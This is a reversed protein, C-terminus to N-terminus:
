PQYYKVKDQFNGKLLYVLDYKAIEEDPNNQLGEKIESSEPFVPAEEGFKVVRYGLLLDRNSQASIEQPSISASHWVERRAKPRNIQLEAQDNTFNYFNWTEHTDGPLKQILVIILEGGMGSVEHFYKYGADFSHTMTGNEYIELWLHVCDINEPLLVEYAFLSDYDPTTERLILDGAHTYQMDQILGDWQEIEKLEEEGYRAKSFFENSNENEASQPAACGGCALLFTMVLLFSIKLRM